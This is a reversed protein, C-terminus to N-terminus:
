SVGEPRYRLSRHEFFEADCDLQVDEVTSDVNLRFLRWVGAHSCVVGFDEHNEDLVNQWCATVVHFLSQMGRGRGKLNLIHNPQLWLTHTIHIVVSYWVFRLHLAFDARCFHHRRDNCLSRTSCAPTCFFFKRSTQVRSGALVLTSCLSRPLWVSAWTEWRTGVDSVTMSLCLTVIRVWFSWVRLGRITGLLFIGDCKRTRRAFFSFGLWGESRLSLASVCCCDYLVGRQM